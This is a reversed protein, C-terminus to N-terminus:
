KVFQNVIADLLQVNRRVNFIRVTSSRRAALMAQADVTQAPTTLPFGNSHCTQNRSVWTRVGDPHRYAGPM